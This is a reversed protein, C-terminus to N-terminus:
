KFSFRRVTPRSSTAMENRLLPWRDRRPPFIDAVEDLLPSLGTVDIRRGSFLSHGNVDTTFVSGDPSVGFQAAGPTSTAATAAAGWILASEIEKFM